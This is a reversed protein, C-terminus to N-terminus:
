EPVHPKRSPEAQRDAGFEALLRQDTQPFVRPPPRRPVLRRIPLPPPSSARPASPPRRLAPRSPKAADAPHVVPGPASEPRGPAPFVSVTTQLTAAPMEVTPGPVPEPAATHLPVVFAAALGLAAALLASARWVIASMNSGTEASIV